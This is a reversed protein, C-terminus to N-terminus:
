GGRRSGLSGGGTGTHALNASEGRTKSSGIRQITVSITRTAMRPRGGRVRKAQSENREVSSIMLPMSVDTAVTRLTANTGRGAITLWLRLSSSALLTKGASGVDMGIDALSIESASFGRTATIVGARRVQNLWLSTGELPKPAPTRM